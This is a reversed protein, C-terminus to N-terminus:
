PYTLRYFREPLTAANTDIFIYRPTAPGLNFWDIFNTTYQVTYAGLQSNPLAFSVNTEGLGVVNTMYLWPSNTAYHYYVSDLESQSILGNGDLDGPLNSTVLSGLDFTQDASTTSGVSNIAVVRWHYSFGASFSTTITVNATVTNSSLSLFNVGGAYATTRGFEFYGTTFSGNPRVTASLQVSLLGNAANTSLISVSLPIITPAAIATTFTQNAGFVTNQSNSAVVRFHYQTAPSLGSLVNSVAVAINTGTLTNTASFSGYSPSTGYAFYWTTVNGQSNVAGNLTAGASSIGTAPLTTAVPAAGGTTFTLTNGTAMGVSNIAVVYFHYTTAPLLGTITSSVSTDTTSAALSNTVSFGHSAPDEVVSFDDLLVTADTPTANQLILDATSNTATFSASNFHYPNVSGVSPSSTFPMFVGGNLSWTSNPSSYGARCNARFRVVYTKSVILNSITTLFTNTENQSQIFAVRSGSPTAGNNAFANGDAPNLGTRSPNSATWGSITTNNSVYGPFVTFNDLEFSPNPITPNSQSFNTSSSYQFYFTTAGNGTNVLGNLTATTATVATAALTTAVPVEPLTLFTQDVGAASGASNNAVMRFHYVVGPSLNSVLTSVPLAINTSSLTNTSSFLGYGTTTGYEFYAATPLDSPNVTGNLTANSASPGSAASTTVLPVGATTTFAVDSGVTLGINGMVVIRFHYTTAPQLNAISSAVALAVNTTALSNTTSFNGYNTTTGYQFYASVALGNPNVVGNLTAATNTLASASTTSVTPATMEVAGIDPASGMPRAFGRQDSTFPTSTAAEFAPSGALLVMTPTPGGNNGLSSLLPNGTTLNTGTQVASGFLNDPTNAAIISNFLTSSVEQYIGGASGSGSSGPFGASNNYGPGGNGGGGGSGTNATLTSQNVALSGANYIAGGLGAGGTGGNGGRGGTSGFFPWSGAGGNGGNGGRATNATFTCQNIALTGANYIAGGAGTGGTGGTGGPQAYPPAAAGSTGTVGVALNGVLTCRDLTLIGSNYIGGGNSYVTGNTLTLARLVVTINSEVQFLRGSGNGNIQIGNTLASADITVNNALLLQGGTLVISTGSLSADFLITDNPVSDLIAQRLTGPGSDAANTISVLTALRVSTFTKDAGVAVGLSNSAVLRYHYLTAPLLPDIFNSVSSALNTATLSNTASFNGYNTDTGYQFWAITDSGNPNVTGTLTANNTTIGTASLTTVTPAAVSTTFMLTDGTATGATNSAIIQFYYTTAPQLSGISNSVAVNINTAPLVTTATLFTTISFNDLLVTSDGTTGNRLVLAATNATATFTASNTYYPNTGGVAPGATFPVFSGGDLSWTGNPVPYGGRCNARFSVRYTKGAILGSITTSLTNTENNSQIFAVNAGSPKAGNDAFPNGNAPNLGTRGTNSSTWGNIAGNASSYGPFITFTNSEFSPNPITGPSYNTDTGYNFYVATQGNGPNVSGNLIADAANVGTAPLTTATPVSVTTFTQDTGFAMGFSNTAVVRFHYLTGASLGGVVNSISFTANTAALNNTASFFGYNTDTGYQFYAATAAAGPNVAANLTANNAGIGTAALTNVTPLGAGTTFTLTNGTISGASNSAVIQFYYTTGPQLGSIINSVTLTANTAPLTNTASFNNFPVSVISFADLLLTSDNPTLNQLVLAATSATATFRASNTHYANAGGVAPDTIFPVFSGGNLSWTGNPPFYGNRSNARFSVEYTKGVVLDTITTSLINTDGYNGQVYAVNTGDPTAGNNAFPSGDAPNLGMHTPNNVTWGTIPGNQGVDGPFITFTDSEFSPNPITASYFNTDSTYAFYFTTPSDGPNVTGNLTANTGTIDSATVTTVVPTQAQASPAVVGLLIVSSLFLPYALKM